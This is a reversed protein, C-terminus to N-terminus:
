GPHRVHRQHPSRDRRALVAPNAEVPHYTGPLASGNEDYDYQGASYGPDPRGGRVHHSGPHHFATPFKFKKKGQATTM